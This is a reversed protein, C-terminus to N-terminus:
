TAAAPMALKKKSTPPTWNSIVKKSERKYSRNLRVAQKCTSVLNIISCITEKVRQAQQLFLVELNRAVTTLCNKFNVKVASTNNSKKNLMLIDDTHNTFIRSFTILVFHAFLEQKVGRETQGHFDEIDILVKSIKYLEEIGWRSHYIDPFETANYQQDDILTTGITYTVGGVVYKILRLSLPIFEVEPHQKRIKNRCRVTLKIIVVRDTDTSEMFEDIIKFSNTPLRFVAHIGKKYHTYLMLYSFYGRDYVVIDDKNSANLHNLAMKREDRHSSLDFDIPIKSKLEYLCSVLGQPYHSSESPTRYSCNLLQRPLNIKTGDVAFIRGSNV